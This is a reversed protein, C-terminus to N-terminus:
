ITSTRALFHSWAIVESHWRFRPCCGKDWGSPRWDTMNGSRSHTGQSTVGLTLAVTMGEPYNLRTKILCQQRMCKGSSQSMEFPVLARTETLNMRIM